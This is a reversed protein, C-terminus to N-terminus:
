HTLIAQESDLRDVLWTKILAQRTIGRRNAAKDLRVVISIPFDVNVKQVGSPEHNPVLRHGVEALVDEGEDMRRDFEKATMKRKM